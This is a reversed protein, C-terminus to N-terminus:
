PKARTKDSKYHGAGLAVISEVLGSESIVHLDRWELCLNGPNMLQKARLFQNPQKIPNTSRNRDAIGESEPSPSVRAM